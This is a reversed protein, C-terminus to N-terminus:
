LFVKIMSKIEKLEGRTYFQSPLTIDFTDLITKLDADDTDTFRYYEDPFEEIKWKRLAAQVREGSLGYTWFRSDADTKVTKEVIRKQIVRLITLAIMCILLHAQIHEPTRVFIPRTDLNGKMERFQDEIRTLGHYKDIVELPDMTLESTVIQYYGMYATFEELKKEDIKALLKSSDLIEGTESNIVEKKFFRKLSRSQSATVRFSSPSERLKQIFDLFSQHEHYERKWFAESWYVVVQESVKRKQGSEDVIDRDIIRSKYRFADGKNIYEDSDLIWEKETKQTKKISKSVIYGNGEDLLHYINKYSCLGRDAVLIFRSFGLQNITKKMAPRLTAQDLTNGPFAEITIPIGMDDMFMGMQVIPQPRHEKCVGDKRLGKIIEGDVEVDDDPDEIEFYFNTVDYFVLDPKRGMGKVIATNMRRIIKEKNEYLIDLTDYINYLYNSKVLPTSYDDNQSITSYKSDPDLIRGFVLLRVFGQLDYEIKSNHKLTACLASLGLDGFVKDLLSQAFYKPHGICEKEGQTFTFHYQEKKEELSVYPLLSEIMPTGNRFSERLREVYEPQGDDFKALPGINLIIERRVVKKGSEDAVRKGKALRLYEVGNNLVKEIFM